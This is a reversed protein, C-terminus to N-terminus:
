MIRPCGLFFLIINSHFLKVTTDKNKEIWKKISLICIHIFFSNPGRQVLLWFFLYFEKWNKNGNYSINFLLNFFHRAFQNKIHWSKDKTFNLYFKNQHTTNCLLLSHSKWIEMMKTIHWIKFNIEAKKQQISKTSGYKDKWYKWINVSVQLHMYLLRKICVQM